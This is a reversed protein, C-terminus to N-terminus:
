KERLSEKREAQTFDSTITKTINEDGPYEIAHASAHDMWLAMKKETTM